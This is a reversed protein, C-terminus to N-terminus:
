EVYTSNLPISQDELNEISNKSQSKDKAEFQAETEAIEGENDSTKKGNEQLRLVALWRQISLVFFITPVFGM